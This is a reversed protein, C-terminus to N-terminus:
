FIVAPAKGDAFQAFFKLHAQLTDGDVPLTQQQHGGFESIDVSISPFTMQQGIGQRRLQFVWDFDCENGIVGM